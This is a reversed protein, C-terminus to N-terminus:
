EAKRREPADNDRYYDAVIDLVSDRGQILDEVTWEAHINPLIGKENFDDSVIAGRTCIRYYSGDPMDRVLPAGTSGGTPTGFTVARDPYHLLLPIIFDEAASFTRTGILIYLPQTFTPLGTGTKVFKAEPEIELATNNYFPADEPIFNLYGHAAKLGDHIRHKSKYTRLTDVDLFSMLLTDAVTEDGGGNFRLDVVIYDAKNIEGELAKLSDTLTSIVMSSLFFMFGNTGNKDQFSYAAHGGKTVPYDTYTFKYNALDKYNVSYSVPYDKLNGEKDKLTLTVSDDKKGCLIFELLAKYRRGHHTSGSVIFNEDLYQEFPVGNVAVVQRPSDVGPFYSNVWGLMYYGDELADINFAPLIYMDDQNEIEAEAPSYFETHGDGVSALFRKLLRHYEEDCSVNWVLPIYQTYLEDWGIRQLKFPDYYNDAVDKWIRSLWLVREEQTYSQGFAWIPFQLVFLVLLISRKM